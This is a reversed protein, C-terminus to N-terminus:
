KWETPNLCGSDPLPEVKYIGLTMEHLPASCSDPVGRKYNNTLQRFNGVKEVRRQFDAAYCSQSSPRPADSDPAVTELVDGLLAYPKRPQDLTADSPRLPQRLDDVGVPDVANANQFPEIRELRPRLIPNAGVFKSRHKWLALLGLLIAWLVILHAFAERSRASAM